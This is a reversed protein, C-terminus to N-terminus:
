FRPHAPRNAQDCGRKKHPEKDLTPTLKKRSM